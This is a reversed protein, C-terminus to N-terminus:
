AAEDIDEFKKLMASIKNDFEEHFRSPVSSVKKYHKNYARPEIKLHECISTRWIRGENKTM